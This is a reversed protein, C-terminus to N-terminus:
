RDASWGPQSAGYQIPENRSSRRLHFQPAGLLQQIYTFAGSVNDAGFAPGGAVPINNQGPVATFVRLDQSLWFVNNQAPDVNTFYPDAGAVLEFLTSANSGSVTKGGVTLVADLERAATGGGPAPFAALSPNSFRIDYGVRIRQPANPNGPNEFDIPTASQSITVGPLNAFSGAPPPITVGLANFSNMSFGEVVLWFANPFTGGSVNIADQVEDRGFTSKDVWFTM